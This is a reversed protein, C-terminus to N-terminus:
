SKNCIWKKKGTIMYSVVDRISSITDTIDRGPIAYAQNTQIINPLVKKLRNALIKALIKFDTNLMTIPRYNKLDAIDGKKKYILKVVGIGMFHSTEDKKFIEDYVKKLIPTLEKIFVKYFESPLGDKGPSKGNNLQMIAEEIEEKGIEKDCLIKDNNDIKRKIKGILFDMEERDVGESKFLIEYYYKIEKLIDETKKVKEGRRGILEKIM